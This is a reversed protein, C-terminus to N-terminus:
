CAQRSWVNALLRALGRFGAGAMFRFEHVRFLRASCTADDARARRKDAAQKRGFATVTVQEVAAIAHPWNLKAM